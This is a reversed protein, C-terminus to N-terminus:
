KLEKTLGDPQEARDAPRTARGRFGDMSTNVGFFNMTRDFIRVPMARAVPITRALRPMVLQSEGREICDLARKAVTEPRLIPLLLPFRTRVGDFMGTSTYSPCVVLSNVGTSDKALEARLSEAFGFAAFKSASYDTQRAVGVLGAASAVTVVTGHGREVMGGLFARTVWYLSHVNVQFTREIEDEQAELLKKGTVVGANNILVDIEGTSQAAAKVATRDAVDVGFAEAAAGTRHIERSVREAAAADIDWIAVRAGRHAAGLALLRGIGRAGGTVLVKRNQLDYQM